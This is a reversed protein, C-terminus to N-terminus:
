HALARRGAQNAPRPLVRLDLKRLIPEALPVLRKAIQIHRQEFRTRDEHTCVFVVPAVTSTRLPVHIVSSARARVEEPQERWEPVMAADYLVVIEGRAVRSVMRGPGLRLAALWASTRAAARLAGDDSRVLVAADQFPLVDRLANILLSFTEYPHEALALVRAVDLLCSEAARLERERRRSREVSILAERLREITEPRDLM